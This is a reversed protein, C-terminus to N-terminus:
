GVPDNWDPSETVKNLVIDKLVANLRQPKVCLLVIADDASCAESVANGNGGFVNISYASQLEDRREARPHSASIQTGVVLEKDLLGTIMSEAMVGCGIFAFKTNALEKGTNKLSM